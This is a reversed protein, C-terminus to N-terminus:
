VFLNLSFGTRAFVLYFFFVSSEVLVDGVFWYLFL